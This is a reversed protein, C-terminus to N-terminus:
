MKVCIILLLLETHIICNPTNHNVFPQSMKMKIISTIDYISVRDDFAKYFRLIDRFQPLYKGILMLIENPLADMTTFKPNLCHRSISKSM